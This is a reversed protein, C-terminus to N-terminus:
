FFLLWLHKRAEGSLDEKSFVSLCSTCFGFSRHSCGGDRFFDRRLGGSYTRSFIIKLPFWCIWQAARSIPSSSSPMTERRKERVSGLKDKPSVQGGGEWQTWPPECVDVWAAPHASRPLQDASLPCAIRKRTKKLWLTAHKEQTNGEEQRISLVTFM